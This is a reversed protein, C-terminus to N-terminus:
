GKTDARIDSAAIVGTVATATAGDVVAISIRVDLEDGPSLGSGDIVFVKEAFTLSNMSQAATTCLDASGATTDRDVKWAEIDITATTDSVTTLMGCAVRIQLTQGAVYNAPVARVQRARRTTTSAKLDGATLYPTNTGLTGSVIGLDDIAPTTLLTQIADHIRWELNSIPHVTLEEQILDTRDLGPLLSGELQLNGTIRVDGNIVQQFAM